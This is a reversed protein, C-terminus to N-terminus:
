LWAYVEEAIRSADGTMPLGIITINRQDDVSKLLNLFFGLDFDHMTIIKNVKLQSIDKIIMPSQINKVVDLIIIDGTAELLDDPSTCHIIEIDQRINLLDKAVIGAFNDEVLYENGFVYIKKM